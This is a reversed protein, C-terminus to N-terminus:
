RRGYLLEPGERRREKRLGQALFLSLPPRALILLAPRFHRGPMNNPLSKKLGVIYHNTKVATDFHGQIL